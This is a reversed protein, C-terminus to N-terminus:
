RARRTSFFSGPERLATSCTTPPTGPRAVRYVRDLAFAVGAWGGYLGTPADMAPPNAPLSDPVSAALYDAAAVAEKLYSEEWTARNLELYFLAVGAMGTGLNEAVVDPKEADVPWARGRPTTVAASSLWSAVKTAAYLYPRSQPTWQPRQPEETETRPCGALLVLALVSALRKM